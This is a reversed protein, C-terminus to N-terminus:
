QKGSVGPEPSVPPFFGEGIVEDAMGIVVFAHPDVSAVSAKLLGVESRGVICLLVARHLGTYGGTGELLTVGRGLNHLINATIPEPNTSIILAQRAGRGAALTFDVARSSIFAVLLAYLVKEPGYIFFAGAFILTDLTLLSRGPPIHFRTEALRAIIDTGGTTGRARLVLGLGIGDIMGGYLSYLLPDSTVPRTYPGILDIALGLVVVTYITRVGFLFGGLRRFGAILLPVNLLLVVAGVPTGIASNLLQAIGTLGGSVVQNPILFVRVAVAILLAGITMLIYDRVIPWARRLFKRWM